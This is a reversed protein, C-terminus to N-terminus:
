AFELMVVHRESEGRGLENRSRTLCLFNSCIRCSSGERQHRWLPHLQKKDRIRAWSRATESVRFESIATDRYLETILSVSAKGNDKHYKLILLTLARGLGCRQYEPHVALWHLRGISTNIEDQWAFATAIYKEGHKIFFFGDTRFLPSSAYRFHVILWSSNFHSEKM